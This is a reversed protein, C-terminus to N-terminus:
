LLKVHHLTDAETVILNNSPTLILGTLHPPLGTPLRPGNLLHVADRDVYWVLDRGPDHIIQRPSVGTRSLQLNLDEDFMYIASGATLAFGGTPLVAVSVADQLQILCVCQLTGLNVEHLGAADCVFLTNPAIAALGRPFLFRLPVQICSFAPQFTVAVINHSNRCAIYVRNGVVAAACPTTYDDSLECSKLIANTTFSVLHFKNEIEDTLIYTDKDYHALQGYLSLTDSSAAVSNLM